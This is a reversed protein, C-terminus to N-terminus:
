SSTSPSIRNIGIGLLSLIISGFFASWFGDVTFGPTILGALMLMGANIVLTFLGLTLINIPLSLFMVFPRILANIIGLVISVILAAIIGNVHIGPIIWSVIMISVSFLIWRAFWYM